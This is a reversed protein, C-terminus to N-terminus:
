RNVPAQAPPLTLVFCAGDASDMLRLDGGLRRALGRGIPLGLGFGTQGEGLSGRWFREFIREREEAPVGPGRDRVTIEPAGDESGVNVEIPEGPPSFRLANDLLIRLVQAVSGPDGLAGVPDPATLRLETGLERARPEFEAIVARANEDLRVAESRLPVGADLRSLDLLAAALVGLRESQVDARAIQDRADVLDPSEDELDEKLLGLMLRLSAVPTRLEHSATAVFTRRAQEQERLRRQMVAFARTLDGVEDGSDDARVEASPGLQAVRLATDRLANLRRVLRSALLIGALVAIVFGVIAAILLERRLVSEASVSAELSRELALGFRIGDARMPLAVHAESEEADGVISSVTTNRQAARAGDQYNADPGGTSALVQGNARVVSVEAGTQQRLARVLHQLRPSRPVLEEETLEGFEIRSASGAEELSALADDRLRRDLATFLPLAAVALTLASVVVFAAILRGHLGLRRLPWV